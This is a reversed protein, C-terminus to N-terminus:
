GVAAYVRLAFEQNDDGPWCRDAENKIEEVTMGGFWEVVESWNAAGCQEVLGDREPRYVSEEEDRVVVRVWDAIEEAEATQLWAVHEDYNDWDYNITKAVVFENEGSLEVVTAFKEDGMLERVTSIDQKYM